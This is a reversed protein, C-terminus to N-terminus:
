TLKTGVKFDNGKLYEKVLMRKKGPFQLDKIIVCDSITNVYLGEDSVKVIKGADGEAFKNCIDVNFVKIRRGEYVIYAGPWPDTGRVLNKITIGKNDWSIKGLEKDMTPAYTSKSDDQPIRNNLNAEISNLTDILLESGIEMLRDHLQGATEDKEIQTEKRLIIDGTDLGRNMFM